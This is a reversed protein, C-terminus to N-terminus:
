AQLVDAPEELLTASSFLQVSPRQRIADLLRYPIGRWLLASLVVDTDLVIRTM